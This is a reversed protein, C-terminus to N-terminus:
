DEKDSGSEAECNFRRNLESMSLEGSRDDDLAAWLRTQNGVYGAAKCARCFQTFNVSGSGDVNFAVHWAAEISDFKCTLFKQFDQVFVKLSEETWASDWTSASLADPSVEYMIGTLHIADSGWVSDLWKLDGGVGGLSKPVLSLLHFGGASSGTTVFTLDCPPRCSEPLIGLPKKRDTVFFRQNLAGQLTVMRSGALDVTHLTVNDVISIGSGVAFRVASLDISGQTEKPSVGTIWGEPTVVLTVLNTSYTVHGGVNFAQRSLAAFQLAQRPRMESPLRCIRINRGNEPDHERPCRGTIIGRCVVMSGGLLYCWLPGQPTFNNPELRLCQAKAGEFTKSAVGMSLTRVCTGLTYTFEHKQEHETVQLPRWHYPAAVSDAKAPAHGGLVSVPLVSRATPRMDLVPGANLSLSGAAAIPGRASLSGAEERGGLGGVSGATSPRHEKGAARLGPRGRPTHPSFLGM